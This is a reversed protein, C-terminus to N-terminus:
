EMQYSYLVIDANGEEYHWALAEASTGPDLDGFPTMYTIGGLFNGDTHLIKYYITVNKLTKDTNNIAKLMNGNSQITVNYTSCLANDRFVCEDDVLVLQADKEVTMRSAEMVWATAGAPLGTVIFKAEQDGMKCIVTGMDLYRDTVNTIQVALVNQVPEGSGDEVYSGSFAAYTGLQLQEPEPVTVEPIVPEPPIAPDIVQDPKQPDVVPDQGPQTPQVSPETVPPETTDTVPQSPQDSPDAASPDTPDTGETDGTPSTPATPDLPDVTPESSAPLSGTTADAPATGGSDDPALCLALVIGAAVAVTAGAFIWVSPKRLYEKLKEMM